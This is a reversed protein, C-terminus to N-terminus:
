KEGSTIWTSFMIFSLVFAGIAVYVFYRYLFHFLYLANKGAEDLIKDSDGSSFSDTM